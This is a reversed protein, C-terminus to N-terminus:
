IEQLREKLYETLKKSLNLKAKILKQKTESDNGKTQEIAHLFIFASRLEMWFFAREVARKVQYVDNTLLAKDKWMQYNETCTTIQTDIPM